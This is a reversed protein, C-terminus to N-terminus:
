LADRFLGPMEIAATDRFREPNQGPVIFAIDAKGELVLQPLENQMKGLAGSLYVDIHLLSNGDHNIADVFPKVAAQYAVSQDSTFFSLKLTIPDAVASRLCCCLRPSFAVCPSDAYPANRTM